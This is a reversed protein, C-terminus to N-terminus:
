GSRAASPPWACAPDAARARDVAVQVEPNANSFDTRTDVLSRRRRPRRSCRRRTLRLAERHGLGLLNAQISTAAAASHRRRRAFQASDRDARRGSAQGPDPSRPAIIQDQTVTREGEPQPLLVRPFPQLGIPARSTRCTTWATSGSLESSSRNAVERRAKSSVHGAAHGHPRHVGGHGRQPHVHPRGDRNLPLDDALVSASIGIM